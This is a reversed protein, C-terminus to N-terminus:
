LGGLTYHIETIEWPLSNTKNPPPLPLTEQIVNGRLRSEHFSHGCAVAKRGGADALMPGPHERVEDSPYEAHKSRWLVLDSRWQTADESSLRPRCAAWKKSPMKLSRKVLSHVTPSSNPNARNGRLPNRSDLMNCHEKTTTGSSTEPVKQYHKIHSCLQLLHM